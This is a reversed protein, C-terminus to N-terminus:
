CSYSRVRITFEELTAKCGNNGSGNYIKSKGELGCCKKDVKAHILTDLEDFQASPTNSFGKIEYFARVAHECSLVLLFPEPPIEVVVGQGSDLVGEFPSVAKRL